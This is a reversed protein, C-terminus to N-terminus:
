LISPLHFKSSQVRDNTVNRAAFELNKIFNKFIKKSSDFTRKINKLYIKLRNM